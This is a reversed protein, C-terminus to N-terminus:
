SGLFSPPILSLQKQHSNEEMEHHSVEMVQQPLYKDERIVLYALVRDKDSGMHKTMTHEETQSQHWDTKKTSYDPHQNNRDKIRKGKTLSNFIFYFFQLMEFCILSMNYAQETGDLVECCLLFFLSGYKRHQSASKETAHRQTCILPSPHTCLTQIRYLNMHVIFESLSQKHNKSLQFLIKNDEM